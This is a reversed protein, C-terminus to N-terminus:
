DLIIGDAQVLGRPTSECDSDVAFKVQQRYASNSNLHLSFAVCSISSWMARNVAISIVDCAVRCSPDGEIFADLIADSIQDALKDPHGMSVSESTFFNRAM